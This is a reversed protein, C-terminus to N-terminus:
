GVSVELCAAIVDDLAADTLFVRPSPLVDPATGTAFPPVPAVVAEAARVLRPAAAAECVWAVPSIVDPVRPTALPPVPADEKVAFLAITLPLEVVAARVVLAMVLLVAAVEAIVPDVLRTVM